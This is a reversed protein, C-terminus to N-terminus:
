METIRATVAVASVRTWSKDIAAIRISNVAHDIPQKRGVTATAM